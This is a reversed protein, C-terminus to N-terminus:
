DPGYGGGWKKYMCKLIIREGIVLYELHDRERLKEWWSQICMKKGGYASYAGGM